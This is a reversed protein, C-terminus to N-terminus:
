LDIQALLEPDADALVGWRSALWKGLRDETALSALAANLVAGPSTTGIQNAAAQFLKPSVKANVHKAKPGDLLGMREAIRLATTPERAMRRAETGAPKPPRAQKGASKGQSTVVM